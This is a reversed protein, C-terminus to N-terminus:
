AKTVTKVRLEARKVLLSALNDFVEAQESGDPFLGNGSQAVALPIQAVLDTGLAKAAQHGGGNGFLYTKEGCHGCAYYAMNEVVGLIDHNVQRAMLGARVAVDAANPHPTTIILERSKPLMSHVDLAVDGTGPTALFSRHLM